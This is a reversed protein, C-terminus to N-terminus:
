LLRQKYAGVVAEARSGVELKRYIAATHTKVTNLSLHLEAAIEARTKHGALLRLVALESQSIETTPGAPRRRRELQSRRRVSALLAPMIGADEFLDLLADAEDATQQAAVFDGHVLYGEALSLLGYLHAAIPARGRLYEVGARLEYLGEEVRGSAALARGLAIHALGGAVSEGVGSESAARLAEHASSEAKGPGKDDLDLLAKTALAHIMSHPRQPANVDRVASLVATRASAPDGSLYRLFALAAFAPIRWQAVSADAARQAAAAAEAVNRYVFQARVLEANVTSSGSTDAMRRSSGDESSTEAIRLWREVESETAGARGTATAAIYCLEPAARLEEAPFSELWRRLTASRGSSVMTPWAGTIIEAAASYDGARITHEFTEGVSGHRHHWAAARQHLTRVLEPSRRTLEAQLLDSFLRHYRYWQRRGDLPVLLLNTREIRDLLEAASSEGTIAQCLPVSMRGLVSTKLLFTELLPDLGALVHEALYDAVHRNDGAFSRIAEGRNAEGELWAVALRLAAAWGETRAALLALEEDNIDLDVTQVFEAAERSSFRLDNQRLEALQGAARMSGLPVPPESRSAIVIQVDSPARDLFLSLLEHCAPERIVHYDDLVLTTPLSQSALDNVLSSVARRLDAGLGRLLVEAQTGVPSGACRLAGIMYRWFLAPDNESDELTLWAVIAGQRPIRQWWESLLTTKGYGLPAQVLALRRSVGATLAAMLRPREIAGPASRPPSLKTVVLDSGGRGVAAGHSREGPETTM